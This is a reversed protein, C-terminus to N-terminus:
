PSTLNVVEIRWDKFEKGLKLLGFTVFDFNCGVGYVSDPVVNFTWVSGDPISREKSTEITSRLADPEANEAEASHAEQWHRFLGHSAILRRMMPNPIGSHQHARFVAHVRQDGDTAHQLLYQVAPRGYVYARGPDIAFAPEDSFVTYDNWMFGLVNPKIPTLSTFNKFEKTSLAAAAEDSKLWDPNRVLFDAQRLEGLFQFQNTGSSALLQKPSYGPEMGGHNLQVFDNGSGLYIVVPLFDYARLIKAANFARGYKGGGEALFGYQANLEVDEHNGRAFHVRDPNALKLRLLTYLVEVGYHGRDTYDGLFFIHFNPDKIAFGDLMGDKNLRDLVALLSHIDGHLDGELFVRATPPLVIKEAFPQFPIPPALFWARETNFFTDVSAAEGVWNTAKAMPGNTSIAFFADLARNMESFTKLPLESRPPQRLGLSRNSPLPACAARWETYTPISDAATSANPTTLLGLLGLLTIVQRVTKMSFRKQLNANLRKAPSGSETVFAGVARIRKDTRFASM